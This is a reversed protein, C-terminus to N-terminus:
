RNREPGKKGHAILNSLTVLELITLQEPRKTLPFDLSDVEVGLPKLSNKLVKRRQNFVTRVMKIFLQEDAVPYRLLPLFNWHVVASDVTPKPYFVHKSMTFLIKVDAYLQSIVALIGYNKNHPNAVIRQAVEKQVTLTLSQIQKNITFLNFIIPSTIHYPINGVIKWRQEGTFVETLPMKLFDGTIITFHAHAGFQESLNQSLQRDIEVVVLKKVQEILYKTLVGTGPGIELVCDEKDLALSAIFKRAINDDILFNQGLSKKPRQAHLIM